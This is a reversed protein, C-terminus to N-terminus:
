VNMARNTQFASALLDPPNQEGGAKTVAHLEKVDKRRRSDDALRRKRVREEREGARRFNEGAVQAARQAERAQREEEKIQKEEARRTQEAAMETEKATMANLKHDFFNPFNGTHDIFMAFVESASSVREDEM